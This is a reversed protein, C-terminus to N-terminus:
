KGQGHTSAIYCHSSFEAHTLSGAKEGTLPLSSGKSDAVACSFGVVQSGAPLHSIAGGAGVALERVEVSTEGQAQVPRSRFMTSGLIVGVVVALTLRLVSYFRM